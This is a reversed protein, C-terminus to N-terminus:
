VKGRFEDYWKFWLDFGKSESQSLHEALYLSRMSLRRPNFTEEVWKEFLEWDFGSMRKNSEIEHFSESFWIGCLFTDLLLVSREKGGHYMQPRKRIEQFLSPYDPTTSRVSM